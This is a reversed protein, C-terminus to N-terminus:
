GTGQHEPPSTPPDFLHLAAQTVHSGTEFSLTYRFVTPVYYSVSAVLEQHGDSHLQKRQVSPLLSPLFDMFLGLFSRFNLLEALRTGM